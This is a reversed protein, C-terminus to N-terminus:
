LVPKLDRQNEVDRMTERHHTPIKHPDQGLAVGCKGVTFVDVEVSLGFARGSRANHKVDTGGLSSLLEQVKSCAEMQLQSVDDGWKSLAKNIYWSYSVIDRLQPPVPTGIHTMVVVVMVETSAVALRTAKAIDKEIYGRYRALTKPNVADFTYLAKAEVLVAPEGDEIVAIDTKKWERATQMQTWPYALYMEYALRDRFPIELKGTLALYALEDDEDGSKFSVLAGGAASGVRGIWM